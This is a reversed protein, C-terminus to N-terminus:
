GVPPLAADIVASWDVDETSGGEARVRASARGRAPRRPRRRRRHAPRGARDRLRRALAPSAGGTTVAITLPGNRAIAPLIFTCDDPQDAANVWIGPPRPTPPSRPTSTRRRRDRHGRAARRRPRRSSRGSACSPSPRRAGIRDGAVRRPAVVRVRAGAARSATSRAPPSRDPVSSWSRSTTSTSPSPTPSRAERAFRRMTLTSRIREPNSQSTDLPTRPSSMRELTRRQAPLLEAVPEDHRGAEAVGHEHVEDALGDRVGLDHQEVGAVQEGLGFPVGLVQAALVVEVQADDRGRGLGDRSRQCVSVSAQQAARLTAGSCRASAPLVAHTVPRRRASEGLRASAGITWTSRNRSM